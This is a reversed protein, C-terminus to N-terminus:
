YYVVHNCEKFYQLKFVNAGGESAAGILKPTHIETFHIRIMLMFRSKWINELYAVYVRNFKSFLM